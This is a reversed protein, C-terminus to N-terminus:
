FTVTASVFQWSFFFREGLVKDPLFNFLVSNGLSVSENLFYDAGFGFNLLFGEDDEDDGGREKELYGLGLGGHVFPKLHRYDPLDFVAKVNATPAVILRDDGVGLQLLAGVAVIDSVFYEGHGTMLFTDPELTFGIAGGAAVKEARDASPARAPVPSPATPAAATPLWHPESPQWRPPWSRGPATACGACPIVLLLATLKKRM